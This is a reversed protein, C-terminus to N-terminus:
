FSEGTIFLLFFTRDEFSEFPSFLFCNPAGRHPWTTGVAANYGIFCEQAVVESKNLIAGAGAAATQLLM